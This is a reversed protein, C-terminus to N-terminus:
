KKGQKEKVKNPQVNTLRDMKVLINNFFNLGHTICGPESSEIYQQLFHSLTLRITLHVSERAAKGLEKKHSPILIKETSGVTMIQWKRYRMLTTFLIFCYILTNM